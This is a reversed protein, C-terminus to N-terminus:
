GQDGLVANLTRALARANSRNLRYTQDGFCLYYGGDPRSPNKRNVPTMRLTLEVPHQDPGLKLARGVLASLSAKSRRKPMDNPNM